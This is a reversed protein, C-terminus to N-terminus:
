LLFMYSPIYVIPKSFGAWPLTYVGRVFLRAMASAPNRPPLRADKWNVLAPCLRISLKMSTGPTVLDTAEVPLLGHRKASCGPPVNPQVNPQANM